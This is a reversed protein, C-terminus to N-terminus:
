ANRARVAPFCTITSFGRAVVRTSPEAITAPTAALVVLGALQLTVALALAQRRGSLRPLVGGALNGALAGLGVVGFMLGTTGRDLGAIDLLWAEAYTFVAFGGSFGFVTFAYPRQLDGRVLAKRLVPVSPSQAVGFDQPLVFPLMTAGTGAYIAIAVFPLHWGYSAALAMGLPVGLVMAVTLGSFMLALAAPVRKAEFLTPLSATTVTFFVGHLVGALARFAILWGFDPATVCALSLLALGGSKLGAITRASRNLSALTMLPAGVSIGLAYAAVLWGGSSLDVGFAGTIQGMVVIMIFESLGM